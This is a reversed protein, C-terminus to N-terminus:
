AAGSAPPHRHEQLALHAHTAPCNYTKGWMEALMTHEAYVSRKVPSKNNHRSSHCTLQVNLCATKGGPGQLVPQVQAQV